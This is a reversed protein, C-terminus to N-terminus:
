HAVDEVGYADQDMARVAESIIRATESASVQDVEAKEKQDLRQKGLWILMTPNGDEVAKKFQARRLSMKGQERGNEIIHVFRRQLTKESCGLVAAIESFTCDIKALELVQNPDIEKRPRGM